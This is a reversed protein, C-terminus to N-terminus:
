TAVELLLCSAKTDRVLEPHGSEDIVRPPEDGAGIHEGEGGV